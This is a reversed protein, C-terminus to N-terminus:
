AEGAWRQIPHPLGVEGNGHLISALGVKLQAQYLASEKDHIMTEPTGSDQVIWPWMGPKNLALPYWRSQNTLEDSIVLKVTGKHRNDVAGFSGGGIAQIMMDQDLFDKWTEEQSSPALLHTMRLGLPKGNPAKLDRFRQKALKLNAISPATGAGTFDNDFVGFDTDFYNVPHADNFFTVGDWCLPNEELRGAIIENILSMAAHAMAAPQDAWGVFDPAEVITALEAVGDQWTKSILSISKQFLSRYKVDGKFEAYLAASVPVPFTSKTAPNAVTRSYGLERAWQDVPGQALAM